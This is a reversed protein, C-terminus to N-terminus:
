SCPIEDSFNCFYFAIVQFFNMKSWINCFGFYTQSTISLKNSFSSFQIFDIANSTKLQLVMYKTVISLSVKWTVFLLFTIFAHKRCSHFDRCVQSTILICIRSVILKALTRTRNYTIEIVTLPPDFEPFTLFAVLNGGYYTLTIIVFLWWFGVTIRGSDAEPVM